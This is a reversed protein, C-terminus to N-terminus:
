STYTALKNGVSGFSNGISNALAKMSVTAALAILCLVLAYEILDQGSEDEVLSNMLAQMKVFLKLGVDRMYINEQARHLM